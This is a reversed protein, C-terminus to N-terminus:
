TRGGRRLRLLRFATVGAWYIAFAAFMSIFYHIGVVYRHETHLPSQALLYYVPVAVIIATQRWNGGFFLLPLGIGVLPLMYWTTFFKQLTRLVLRPLRTWGYASEGLKYLSIRSVQATVSAAGANRIEVSMQSENGSVFPIRLTNTPARDQPLGQFADPVAGSALLSKGANRTLRIDLRGETIDIPVHLVHDMGPTLPIPPSLLFQHDPHAPGNLLINGDPLEKTVSHDQAFLEAPSVSWLPAMNSTAALSHTVAPVASVIPTQESTLMFGARRVMVGGFWFPHQKIVALGRKLRDRDRQIGDAGYLSRAYEPRNYIQAEWQNVLHDKQILGFRHHQDYDAIGACLNHGVGIALPTFVRFVIINRLTIPVIVVIAAGVFAAAFRLRKTRPVLFAILPALFPALLAANPRFWCSIGLLAGATVITWLRPRKYTLVILFMAWVIPLVALSDPLLVISTHALQPSIAVLIGAIIAAGLPLLQRALLFVGLVTFGDLLIQMFRWVTMSEGFPKFIAALFLSYGPPHTMIDADNPPNPGKVFLTTQGAILAVADAKYIDSMGFHMKGSEIDTQQDQWHLLRVGVATAILLVSIPVIIKFTKRQSWDLTSAQPVLWRRLLTLWSRSDSNVHRMSRLTHRPTRAGVHYAEARM